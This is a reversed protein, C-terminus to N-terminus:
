GKKFTLSSEGQEAEAITLMKDTIAMWNVLIKSYRLSRESAVILAHLEPWEKAERAALNLEGLVSLYKEYINISAKGDDTGSGQAQLMETEFRMATSVHKEVCIFCSETKFDPNQFIYRHLENEFMRLHSKEREDTVSGSGSCTPCKQM